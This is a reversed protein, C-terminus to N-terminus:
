NQVGRISPSDAIHVRATSWRMQFNLSSVALGAVKMAEQQQDGALDNTQTVHHLDVQSDSELNNVLTYSAFGRRRLEEGPEQAFIHKQADIAEVAHIAFEQMRFRSLEDIESFAVM